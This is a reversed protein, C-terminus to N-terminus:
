GDDDYDETLDPEQERRGLRLAESIGFIALCLGGFILILNL